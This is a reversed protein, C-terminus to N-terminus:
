QKRPSETPELLSVPQLACQPASKHVRRVASKTDIKIAVFGNSSAETVKEGEWCVAMQMSQEYDAAVCVVTVRRGERGVHHAGPAM